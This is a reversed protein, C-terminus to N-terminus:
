PPAQLARIFDRDSYLENLLARVLVPYEIQAKPIAIAGAFSSEFRTRADIQKSFVTAGDRTLTFEASILGSGISFGSIDIDNTLLLGTLKLTANNDLLNIDRLDAIVADELYQAFSGSPSKLASGRLGISNVGAGPDKPEFPGVALKSLHQRKLTDLSSYDPTYSPAVLTCGAALLTIALLLLCFRFRFRFCSM